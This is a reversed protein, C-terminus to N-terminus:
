DRAFMAKIRVRFEGDTEERLGCEDRVLSRTFAPREPDSLEDLRRKAAAMARRRIMWRYVFDFMTRM